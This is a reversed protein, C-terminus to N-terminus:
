IDIGVLRIIQVFCFLGSYVNIGSRTVAEQTKDRGDIDLLRGKSYKPIVESLHNWIIRHALWNYSNGPMEKENDIKRDGHRDEV